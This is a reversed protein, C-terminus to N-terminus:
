SRERVAAVRDPPIRQQAELRRRAPGDGVLLLTAGTRREVEPWAELVVDLQKERALRGLFVALPGDPLNLRRRTESQGAQRSPHFRELDVGLPV